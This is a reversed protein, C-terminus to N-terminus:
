MFIVPFFPDSQEAVSSESTKMCYVVGLKSQFTLHKSCKRRLRDSFVIINWYIYCQSLLRKSYMARTTRPVSDGHFLFLVHSIFLSSHWFVLGVWQHMLVGTRMSIGAFIKNLKLLVLFTKMLILRSNLECFTWLLRDSKNFKVFNSLEHLCNKVGSM